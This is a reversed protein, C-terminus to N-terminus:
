PLKAWGEEAIQQREQPSLVHDAHLVATCRVPAGYQWPLSWEIADVRLKITDKGHENLVYDGVRPLFEVLKSYRAYRATELRSPPESFEAEFLLNTFM